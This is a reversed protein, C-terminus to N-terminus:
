AAQNVRWRQESAVGQDNKLITEIHLGNARGTRAKKQRFFVIVLLGTEISL